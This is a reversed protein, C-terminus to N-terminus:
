RRGCRRVGFVADVVRPCVFAGAASAKMPTKKMASKKMVKKAKMASKMTKMAKGAMIRQRIGLSARVCAHVSLPQLSLADRLEWKELRDVCVCVPDAIEPACANTAHWAAARTDDDLDM